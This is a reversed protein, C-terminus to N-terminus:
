LEAILAELNRCRRRITAEYDARWEALREAAVRDTQFLADQRFRASYSEGFHTRLYQEVEEAWGKVEPILNLEFRSEIGYGRSARHAFDQGVRLFTGLTGRHLARQQLKELEVGRASVLRYADLWTEYIAVVLFAAVGALFTRWSINRQVFHEYAALAAAVVGGTIYASLHKIVSLLFIPIERV